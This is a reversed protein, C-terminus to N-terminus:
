SVPKKPPKQTTWPEPLLLNYSYAWPITQSSSTYSCYATSPHKSHKARACLLISTPFQPAPVAPNNWETFYSVGFRLVTYFVSEYPYQLPLSVRRISTTSNASSYLWADHMSRGAIKLWSKVEVAEVYALPQTANATDTDKHRIAAYSIHGRLSCYATLASCPMAFGEKNEM